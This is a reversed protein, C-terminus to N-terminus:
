APYLEEADIDYLGTAGRKDDEVDEIEHPTVLKRLQPKGHSLGRAATLFVLDEASPMHTSAGIVRVSSKDSLSVLQTSCVLPGADPPNAFYAQLPPIMSGGGVVVLGANEWDAVKYERKTKGVAQQWRGVYYEALPRGIQNVAELLTEPKVLKIRSGNVAKFWTDRALEAKGTRISALAPPSLDGWIKLCLAEDLQDCGITRTGAAFFNVRDENDWTSLRFIGIDTTGAGIDVVVYPKHPEPKIADAIGALIAQAEGVVRVPREPEPTGDQAVEFAADLWAEIVENRRAPLAVREAMKHATRLIREFREQSRPDDFENVPADLNILVKTNELSGVDSEVYRMTDAIVGTLLVASTFEAEPLDVGEVRPLWDPWGEDRRGKGLLRMKVSREIARPDAREAEEGYAVLEPRIVVSSPVAFRSYGDTEIGFDVLAVPARRDTLERVAVKVSSTGFDLGVVVVRQPQRSEQQEDGRDGSLFRFLKM